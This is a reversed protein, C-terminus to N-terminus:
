SLHFGVNRCCYGYLLMQFSFLRGLIYIWLDVVCVNWILHAWLGVYMLVTNHMAQLHQM